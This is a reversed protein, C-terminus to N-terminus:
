NSVALLPFAPVILAMMGVLLVATIREGCSWRKWDARLYRM